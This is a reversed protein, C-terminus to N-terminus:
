KKVETITVQVTYDNKPKDDGTAKVIVVGGYNEAVLTLSKSRWAELTDGDPTLDVQDNATVGEVGEAVEVEVEQFYPSAEGQWADALLTVYGIRAITSNQIPNKNLYEKVANAIQEDTAGVRELVGVRRELEEYSWVETETYIYDDPKKRPIVSFTKHCKTYGEAGDKVYCYASILGDKQLLVNPVDAIFEGNIEYPVVVLATDDDQSLANQPFAWHIETCNAPVSMKQNVDWQYFHKRNNKIRFM